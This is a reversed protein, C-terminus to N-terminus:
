PELPSPPKLYEPISARVSARKLLYSLGSRARCQQERRFAIGLPIATAADGVNHITDAFLALSGTAFVAALQLAATITLIV